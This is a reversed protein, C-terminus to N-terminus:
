GRKELAMELEIEDRIPIGDLGIIPIEPKLKRRAEDVANRHVAALSFGRKQYFRLAHMNDNTTVVSLRRCGAAAAADRVAAVLESGVGAGGALSKLSSIECEDADIRYTLLGVRRDGQLAFFGRHEDVHHLRGGYAQTTGGWERRLFDAVWPHDGKGLPRIYPTTM